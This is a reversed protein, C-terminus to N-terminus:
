FYIFRFKAKLYDYYSTKNGTWDVFKKPLTKTQKFL